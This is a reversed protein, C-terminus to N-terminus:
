LGSFAEVMDAVHDVATGLTTGKSASSSQGTSKEQCCNCACTQLAAKPAEQFRREIQGMIQVLLPRVFYSLVICVQSGCYVGRKTYMGVEYKLSLPSLLAM